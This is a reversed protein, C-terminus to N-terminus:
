VLVCVCVCVEKRWQMSFCVAVTESLSYLDAGLWGACAMLGVEEVDPRHFM